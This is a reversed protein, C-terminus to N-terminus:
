EDRQGKRCAIVLVDQGNEIAGYTEIRDNPFETRWRNLARILTEAGCPLIVTALPFFRRGDNPQDLTIERSM